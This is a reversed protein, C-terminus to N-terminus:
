HRAGQAQSPQPLAITVVTGGEPPCDISIRGEHVEVLRKATALGLGTFIRDRIEAPIGPGADAVVIRCARATVDVFIRIRGGGHMAQAANLFLNLLVIQLLHPDVWIPLDSGAIEFHLDKAAPDRSVLLSTERVLAVLDVLSPRMQPPRAFLLIDKMLEDLSDIRAVIEDIIAVDKWGPPMRRGIIQIAGRVGALPNRVEHAVVAAMQGLQVLAAQERLRGDAARLSQEARKRVIIGALTSAFAGFFEEEAADKPHGASLYVNLV